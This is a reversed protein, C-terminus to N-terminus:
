YDQKSISSRVIFWLRLTLRDEMVGQM